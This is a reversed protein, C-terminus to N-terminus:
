GKRFYHRSLPHTLLTKTLIPLGVALPLLWYTIPNLEKWVPLFKGNDVYFAILLFIYSLAMGTMHYITWKNWKKRAALRGIFAAAFSVVGLIFLHYDEKWRAVAMLTATIFVVRLFWYYVKGSKSHTGQQKRALMAFIGSVVCTLGAAVHIGLVTLFLPGDFPIEFGEIVTPNGKFL